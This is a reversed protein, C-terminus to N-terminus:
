SQGGESEKAQLGSNSTPVAAATERELALSLTLATASMQLHVFVLGIAAVAAMGAATLGAETMWGLRGIAWAGALIAALSGFLTGLMAGIRWLRTRAAYRQRSSEM